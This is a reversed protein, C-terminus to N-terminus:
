KGLADIQKQIDAAKDMQNTRAYLSKLARLTEPDKNNMQYAKELEPLAKAFLDDSQKKMQDYKAQDAPSTGLDNMGKTITVAQNFFLAGISYQADLYDPKLDVAKRYATEADAYDKTKEYAIGLNYYFGANNPELVIASKLGTIAENYNKQALAINLESILLTEYEKSTNPTSAEGKKLVAVADATDKQQKYVNALDLYVNAGMTKYRISNNYTYGSLTIYLQKATDLNKNLLATYATYFMSLTDILPLKYSTAMFNSVSLAHQFYPYSNVPDNKSLFKIGKNFYDIRLQALLPGIKDNYDKKDDLSISKQYSAFAEGLADTALSQKTSDEYISQYILGRFYWTKAKQSTNADMAAGDIAKKALSLDGNTLYNEASQVAANQAMTSALSMLFLGLTLISISKM